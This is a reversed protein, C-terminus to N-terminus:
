PRGLKVSLGDPRVKINNLASLATGFDHPNYLSDRRMELNKGIGLGVVIGGDTHSVGEELPAQM